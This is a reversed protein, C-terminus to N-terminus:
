KEALINNIFSGIKQARVTLSLDNATRLAGESLKKRLEYDDRLKKIAERIEDISNPDILISNSNNLIDKNFPLNSSVVPLGCALAEVVANCCGESLTPLVFLDCASLFAPIEDHKLGQCFVVRPGSPKDGKGAFAGYVNDLQEIAALVRKDGKREIFGGVFGVVFIDERIGFRKRSLKRDMPYFVSQDVSNPALLIPIDDLFPLSRLERSNDSSVSILGRLGRIDRAKLDRFRQRVESEYDCEGYAIFAPIGLTRGIKVAALGGELFFHGYVCDFRQNLKRALRVACHQFSYESIQGTNWNGIKISSFTLCRPYYVKVKNGHNTTHIDQLPITKAKDKYHTISVPMIVTCDVGQDAFSFILNQFFVNRYPDVPNPYIGVFLMKNVPM